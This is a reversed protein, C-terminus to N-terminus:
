TNSSGKSQFEPLALKWRIAALRLLLITGISVLRLHPQPTELERL